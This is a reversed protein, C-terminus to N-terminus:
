PQPVFRTFTCTTKLQRLLWQQPENPTHAHTLSERPYTTEIMHISRVGSPYLGGVGVMLKGETRSLTASKLKFKRAMGGPICANLEIKVRRPLFAALFTMSHIALFYLNILLLLPPLPPTPTTTPTATITIYGIRKMSRGLFCVM